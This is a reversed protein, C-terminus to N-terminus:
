MQTSDQQIKIKSNILALIASHLTLHMKNLSVRNSPHGTQGLLRSLKLYIQSFITSWMLTRSHTKILTQQHSNDSIRQYILLITATLRNIQIKIPKLLMEMSILTSSRKKIKRTSPQVGLISTMLITTRITEKHSSILRSVVILSTMIPPRRPRLPRLRSKKGGRRKRLQQRKLSKLLKRCSLRRSPYSSQGNYRQRSMM